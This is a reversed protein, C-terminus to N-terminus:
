RHYSVFRVGFFFVIRGVSRASRRFLHWCVLFRRWLLYRGVLSFSAVSHCDFMGISFCYFNLSTFRVQYAFTNNPALEGGAIGPWSLFKRCNWYFWPFLVFFKLRCLLNFQSPSPSNHSTSQNQGRKQQRWKTQNKQRSDVAGVSGIM